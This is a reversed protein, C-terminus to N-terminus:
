KRCSTLSRGTLSGKTSTMRSAVQAEPRTCRSKVISNSGGASRWGPAGTVACTAGEVPVCRVAGGAGAAAAGRGAGAGAGAAGAAGGAVARAGAGAVVGEEEADVGPEPSAPLRTVTCGPSVAPLSAAALLGALM